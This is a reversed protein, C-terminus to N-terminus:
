DKEGKFWMETLMDLFFDISTSSGLMRAFDDSFITAKLLSSGTAVRGARRRTSKGTIPTLM